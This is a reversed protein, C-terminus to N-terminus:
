KWLQKNKWTIYPFFAFNYVLWAIDFFPFFYVLKKERVRIAAAGWVIWFVMCRIGMLILAMDWHDCFLLVFFCLWALAHTIGYAGLLAKIDSKYNRGTSFHRQKQKIWDAWTAKANSYTFASENCVVAFNDKTGRIRVLMDDDGSATLNWDPDNQVKQMISKTCALNRGVAMYPLGAVAYTSYQLFTHLTEWRTFANLLGKVKHYGGYGAVIEKGKALPAVMQELWKDSAPICDADTLLLWEYTAHAIGRSLAHKKGKLIREEGPVIIVDWLNDYQKELEQLVKETDDTSADNVVIVEYAGRYKQLLIAPLNKKLNDAENNTCIIISVGQREKAPLPAEERLLFVRIFFYLAFGCQIVVAMIFLCFVM